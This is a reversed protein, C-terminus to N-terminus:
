KKAREQFIPCGQGYDSCMMKRASKKVEISAPVLPFVPEPATCAYMRWKIVQRRGAANLPVALFACDKCTM